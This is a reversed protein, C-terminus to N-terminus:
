GTTLEPPAGFAASGLASCLSACLTRAVAVVPGCSTFIYIEFIASILKFVVVTKHQFTFLTYWPVHLILYLEDNNEICTCTSTSTLFYLCAAFGCLM